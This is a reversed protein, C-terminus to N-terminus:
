VADYYRKDFSEEPENLIESIDCYKTIDFNNEEEEKVKDLPKQNLKNECEQMRKKLNERQFELIERISKSEKPKTKFFSDIDEEEDAELNNEEMQGFREIFQAKTMQVEQFPLPGIFDNETMWNIISKATPISLSFESQIHTLSVSDNQICDWLVQKYVPPIEITKEIYAYNLDDKLFIKEEELFKLIISHVEKYSLHFEKQIEPISVVKNKIIYKEVEMKNM